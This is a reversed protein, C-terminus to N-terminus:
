RKRNVTPLINRYHFHYPKKEGKLDASGDIVVTDGAYRVTMEGVSMPLVSYGTAGMLLVYSGGYSGDYDLGRLFHMLTATSDSQYTGAPLVSQAHDNKLEANPVFIDSIYLNTGMGEIKGESNLGIGEGYLDLSVVDYDVGEAKYFAGYYELRGSTLVSDLTARVAPTNHQQCGTLGCTLVCLSLVGIVSIKRAPIWAAFAGLALVVSFVLLVDAWQICVPYASLVYNMGNGLKLIGFHQQIGCVLVGTLTGAVAGVASILWGEFLFIRRIMQEDAGLVHLLRIDENKDLILMSLSSIINFSAILLIFILLLASLWKEIMQIRYFDAQQEYRNLVIYEGGFDAQLQKQVKRVSAGDQLRLEIATAQNADYEFLERALPLSIILYTDDYKVQNVAFVGAIFVGKSRFNEDPRLMNVAGVRKPAYLHVPSIFRAGIGISNALGVGMVCREFAGDWVAFNGDIIISDISTLQQYTTDVGKLLAPVQKGRFEVLATEEVTPAVVTLEPMAFLAQIREDSLDLVKGEAPMVRLEADLQSFMDAVVEGFGNMVSLVCIMAATVVAVALCSIGSIINIANQRKKAVLYRWAIHREIKAVCCSTLISWASSRRM